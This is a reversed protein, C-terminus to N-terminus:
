AASSTRIVYREPTEFGLAEAVRRAVGVTQLEGSMFRYLTRTSIGARVALQKPEWGRAAMDEAVLQSDFKISPMAM